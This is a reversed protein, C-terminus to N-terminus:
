RDAIFYRYSDSNLLEFRDHYRLPILFICRPRTYTAGFKSWLKRLLM